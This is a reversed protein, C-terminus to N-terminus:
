DSDEAAAAGAGDGGGQLLQGLATYAEHVKRSTDRAEDALTGLAAFLDKDKAEVFRATEWKLTRLFNAHM